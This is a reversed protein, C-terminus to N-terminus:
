KEEVKTVYKYDALSICLIITSALFILRSLTASIFPIGFMGFERFLLELMLFCIIGIATYRNTKIISFSIFIGLIILIIQLIM